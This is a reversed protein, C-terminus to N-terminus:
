QIKDFLGSCVFIENVNALIVQSSVENEIDDGCNWLQEHIFRSLVVAELDESKDVEVSQGLWQLKEKVTGELLVGLLSLVIQTAKGTKDENDNVYTVHHGTNPQPKTELLVALSFISGCTLKLFIASLRPDKSIIKVAFEFM